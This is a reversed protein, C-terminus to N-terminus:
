VCFNALIAGAVAVASGLCWYKSLWVRPVPWRPVNFVGHQQPVERTRELFIADKIERLPIIEVIVAFAVKNSISDGHYNQAVADDYGRFRYTPLECLLYSRWENAIHMHEGAVSRFTKVPEKRERCTTSAQYAM